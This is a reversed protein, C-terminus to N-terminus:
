FKVALDLGLLNASDTTASYDSSPTFMAYSARLGVNDSHKWMASFDLETGIATNVAETYAFNFFKAGITLKNLQEPTWNAGVNFTTLNTVSNMGAVGGFILGPNYNANVAQFDENKDTTTAKDGSGMAYQGMFEFKGATKADLAYNVDAKMASGTYDVAGDNGSNM